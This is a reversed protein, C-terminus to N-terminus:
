EILFEGLTFIDANLGIKMTTTNPMGEPIKFKAENGTVDFFDDTGISHNTSVEFSVYFHYPRADMFDAGTLLVTDGPAGMMVDATITPRDIIEIDLGRGPRAPVLPSEVSLPYVGNDIVPVEVIIKKEVGGYDITGSTKADGVWVNLTGTEPINVATLEFEAGAWIKQPKREVLVTNAIKFDFFSTTHDANEVEIVYPLTTLNNCNADQELLDYPVIFQIEFPDYDLVKAEAVCGGPNDYFSVLPKSGTTLNFGRLLVTDGTSIAFGQLMKVTPAFDLSFSSTATRNGIKVSVPGNTASDPISAVRINDISISSPKVSVQGDAGNFIVITSDIKQEPNPGIGEVMLNLSEGVEVPNVNSELATIKLDTPEPTDGIDVEESCSSFLAVELFIALFIFPGPLKNSYM